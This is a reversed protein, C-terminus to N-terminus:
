TLNDKSQPTLATTMLDAVRRRQGDYIHKYVQEVIRISSHGLLDAVEVLTAGQAILLSAAAHRMDHFHQDPVGARECHMHFWLRLSTGHIPQGKTTTFILGWEHPTTERGKHRRLADLAPAPLYFRRRSAPTKLRELAFRGPMRVLQVDLRVEGTELNVDQWRLGLAESQRIGVALAATYLAELRDGRIAVLFRQAEELTLPEVEKREVRAPKALAAVNRSVREDRVADNLAVSLTQRIANASKPEMGAGLLDALMAEIHRPSLDTLLLKGFRPILHVTIASRHKRITNYAYPPSKRADIWATLYDEVTVHAARQKGQAHEQRRTEVAAKLEKASKAYVSVRTGDLTLRQEYRGDPRIRVGPPLKAKTM